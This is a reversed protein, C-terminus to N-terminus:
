SPPFHELIALFDNNTGDVIANSGYVWDVRRAGGTCDWWNVHFGKEADWDIRWGRKGNPSMSGTIEGAYPGIEQVFPVTDDGLGANDIADSRAENLFDFISRDGRFNWLLVADGDAM